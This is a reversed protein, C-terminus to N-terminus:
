YKLSFYFLFPSLVDGTQQRFVFFNSYVIYNQRRNQVPTFSPRVNLSSCL